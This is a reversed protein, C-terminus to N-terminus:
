SLQLLKEMLTQNVCVVNADRKEMLSQNVRGMQKCYLDEKVTQEPKRAEFSCKRLYKVLCMFATNSIQLIGKRKANQIIM